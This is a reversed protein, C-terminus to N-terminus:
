NAESLLEREEDTMRAINDRPSNNETLSEEAPRIEDYVSPEKDKALEALEAITPNRFIELLNIHVGIERQMKFIAKTAKLSHGGLSFFND